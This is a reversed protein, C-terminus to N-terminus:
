KTNFEIAVAIVAIIEKGNKRYPLEATHNSAPCPHGDHPAYLGNYSM